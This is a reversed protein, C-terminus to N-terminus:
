SVPVWVLMIEDVDIDAKELGVSVTSIQAATDSWEQQIQQLDEMLTEELEERDEVLEEYRNEATKLREESKAVMRGTTQSRRLGRTIMSRASRRGGLLNGLLGGAIDLVQSSRLNKKRSIADFQIERMKDESKQIANNIRDLKSTLVRRLKDADADARQDAESSCRLEFEDRAEGVRSYLKLAANHLLEIHQERYLQKKVESQASRFFTKNKIKADPLRYVAQEPAEKQLDREDYDVRIAADADLAGSLPTIFAEWEAEHRLAAKTEDFLLKVRIAVAAQLHTGSASGGLQELFSAATSLYRVRIGEAVQPM